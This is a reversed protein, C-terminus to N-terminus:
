GVIKRTTLIFKRRDWDNKVGLGLLILGRKPSSPLFLLRYNEKEYEVSKAVEKVYERDTKELQKYFPHNDLDKSAFLALVPSTEESTKTKLVIDM